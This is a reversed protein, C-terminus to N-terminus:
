YYIQIFFGLFDNLRELFKLVVERLLIFSVSGDYYDVEPNNHWQNPNTNDFDLYFAPRKSTLYRPESSMRSNTFRPSTYMTLSSEYTVFYICDPMFDFKSAIIM